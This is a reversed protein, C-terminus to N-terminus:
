KEKYKTIILFLFQNQITIRVQPHNQGGPVKPSLIYKQNYFKPAVSHPLCSDLPYLNALSATLCGVM